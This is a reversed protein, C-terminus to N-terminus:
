GCVLDRLALPLQFASTHGEPFVEGVRAVPQAHREVVEPTRGAADDGVRLLGPLHISVRRHPRIVAYCHIM